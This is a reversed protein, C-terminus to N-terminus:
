ADLGNFEDVVHTVVLQYQPSRLWLTTRCSCGPHSFSFSSLNIWSVVKRNLMTLM